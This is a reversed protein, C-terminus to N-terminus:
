YSDKVINGEDLLVIKPKFTKAETASMQAYSVIIVLDGPSTLHAAAGNIGITKSGREGIITYTTFRNGNTINLVDVQEFPLIGAEDLLDEDITISGEYMLDAQTVTAKHLKAKMMTLTIDNM